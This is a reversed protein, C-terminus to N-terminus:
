WSSSITEKVWGLIPLSIKRLERLTLMRPCDTSAAPVPLNFSFRTQPSTASDTRAGGPISQRLLTSETPGLSLWQAQYHVSTSSYRGCASAISFEALLAKSYLSDVEVRPRGGDPMTSAFAEFMLGSVVKTLGAFAPVLDNKLNWMALWCLSCITLLLLWISMRIASGSTRAPRLTLTM